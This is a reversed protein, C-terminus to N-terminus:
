SSLIRNNIKKIIHKRFIILTILILILLIIVLYYYNSSNNIQKIQINKCNLLNNKSIHYRNKYIKNYNIVRYLFNSNNDYNIYKKNFITKFNKHNYLVDNFLGPGTYFFVARIGSFNNGYFLFNYKFSLDFKGFNSLRYYMENKLDTIIKGKKESSIFFNSYGFGIINNYYRMIYEDYKGCAFQTDKIQNYINNIKTKIDIYIGGYHYLILIRFIDAKVAGYDEDICIYFNYFEPYYKKIFKKVKIDDYFKFELEPNNKKNYLIVDSFKQAVKKGKTHVFYVVKPIM